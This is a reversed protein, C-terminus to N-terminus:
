PHLCHGSAPSVFHSPFIASVLFSSFAENNSRRKPLMRSSLGFGQAFGGNDSCYALFVRLVLITKGRTASAAIGAFELAQIRTLRAAPFPQAVFRFRLYLSFPTSM